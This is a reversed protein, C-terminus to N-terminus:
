SHQGVRHDIMTRFYRAIIELEDISFEEHVRHMQETIPGYPDEAGGQGLHALNEPAVEVVVRRRDRPDPKRRILGHRELRDLVRTTTSTPLETKDSVEGTSLPAGHRNLIGLTQLDVVNIGISQAIRENTLVSSAIVEQILGFIRESIHTRTSM